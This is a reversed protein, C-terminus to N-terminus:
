RLRAPVIPCAPNVENLPSYNPLEVVFCSHPGRDRIELMGGHRHVIDRALPLGLGTGIGSPKTTFFPEFVRERLPIPVGGGSDSVEVTFHNGNASTRLQVWGGPGAAHIGNELLNTLVQTLLPPACKLNGDCTTDMRMEVGGAHALSVARQVLERVPISRLDLEVVGKRFGLLQRSLFAIQEACGNLVDILQAVATDPQILERPLLDALPGVANVIANAPNRLEHALGATLVSLASLQEARQLRIAMDRMRFQARIRARLELPDFPKTVYDIAGAELGTIRTGLDLVASLVIIPALRDGTIERFRRSLEIGNVEPMDIDTILMQPHHVPVLDLAQAGDHAIVVTYEDSLGRGIVEALRADDEALLITGASFGGPRFLMLPADADSQSPTLRLQPARSARPEDGRIVVSAPLRVRLESGVGTPRRLAAITGGHAEVLQKAVFLGLGTGTQRNNEDHAREYRGFLRGQLEESVGIGTDLVSLRIGDADVILEVEITGGRPTYKVANSVLNSAVRELAVPDAQAYLPTAVSGVLSLGAAEAAPQWADILTSILAGLDTREPAIRLKDEQGAALLLLEDVLRVLKHAADTVAGLNKRARDDLVASARTQIDATALLILSLPTRIEHTINGFFRERAGQAERLEVVTGALQDRAQRLEGTGEDVLRELGSRYDALTQYSLANQLAMTLTPVIFALLEQREERNAGPRPAVRLEGIVEGGRAELTRELPLEHDAAGFTSTRVLAPANPDSGRLTIEAWAFGAEDVLAKAVTDLTRALDLDRLALDNVTHATRLQTAQRDLKARADEIELYREILAEHADRLERAAARATFPWTIARVVRAFLRIQNAVTIHYRGGRPIRELEVRAAPYGLLRPMEEFNGITILFFDWCVEFGEPLVLEVECKTDSIQRHQPIVCTFMQNGAGARPKNLWRYFDMASFLLRSVVFVFRLPPSRMYSRGVELYEEDTFHPRLNNMVAVFEHWDIREKKNRLRNLTLSTNAVMVEPDIGKTALPREFIEFIRCSVENM